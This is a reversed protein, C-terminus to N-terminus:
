RIRRREFATITEEASRLLRQMAPDDASSSSFRLRALEELLTRARTLLERDSADTLRAELLETTVIREALDFKDAFYGHAARYLEAAYDDKRGKKLLDRAQKLRARAVAHSRRLRLGRGDRARRRRAAAIAWLVSGAIVGSAVAPWFRPDVFPGAGPVLPSRRTTKIYRIDAAEASVGKASPSPAPPPAAADEASDGSAPKATVTQAVTRIEYYAGTRPDFYAFKAPPVTHTGPRRPVVVIEATKEGEVKLRDKVVNSNYSPDYVKFAELQPLSPLQVTNINGEGSVRIKLTVPQGVEVERPEIQSDIRYQGVAGTFSAPKGQEPLAKVRVTVPAPALSKGVMETALPQRILSRGILGSSIFGQLPDQAPVDVIVKLAGPDVTYVGAQTPFLAIKRVTAVVYREGNLIQETRKLAKDSPFEEAWFGTTVPEKEFGKFTASHNTYLTYTLVVPENIYVEEKDATVRAFVDRDSIVGSVSSPGSAARQSRTPQRANVPGSGAPRVEIDAAPVRYDVGGINVNLPGLKKQGPSTAFFGLSLVTMSTSRGNTFSIEQRHSRSFNSFDQLASTDPMQVRGQANYITIDLILEEGVEVSSRNVSSEISVEALAAASAPGSVIVLAIVLARWLDRLVEGTKRM